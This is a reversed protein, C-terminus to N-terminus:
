KRFKKDLQGGRYRACEYRTTSALTSPSGRRQVAAGAEGRRRMRLAGRRAAPDRTRRGRRQARSAQSPGALTLAPEQKIGSRRASRARRPTECAAAACGLVAPRPPGPSPYPTQDSNRLPSGAARALRTRAPGAPYPRAAAASASTLLQSCARAARAPRSQGGGTCQACVKIHKEAHV